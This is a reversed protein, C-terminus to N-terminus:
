FRNKIAYIDGKEILRIIEESKYFDISKSIKYSFNNFYKKILVIPINVKMCISIYINKNDINININSHNTIFINKNLEDDIYKKAKIKIDEFDINNFDYINKDFMKEYEIKSNEFEAENRMCLQIKQITKDIVAMARSYDYLYFGLYIFCILISIIIIVIISAEITYSANYKLNNRKNFYFNKTKLSM